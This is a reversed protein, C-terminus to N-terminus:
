LREEKEKFEVNLGVAFVAAATFLHGPNKIWAGVALVVAFLCIAWRAIKTLTTLKM